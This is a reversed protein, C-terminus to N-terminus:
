DKKGLRHWTGLGLLMKPSGLRLKGVISLLISKQQKKSNQIKANLTYYQNRITNMSLFVKKTCSNTTVLVCMLLLFMWNTWRRSWSRTKKAVIRTKGTRFSRAFYRLTILLHSHLNSIKQKVKINCFLIHRDGKFSRALIYSPLFVGLSRCLFYFM